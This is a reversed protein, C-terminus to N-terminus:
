MCKACQRSDETNIYRMVNEWETLNSFSLKCSLAKRKLKEKGYFCDQSWGCSKLWSEFNCKKNNYVLFQIFFYLFQCGWTPRCYTQLFLLSIPQELFPWSTRKQEPNSCQKPLVKNMFHFLFCIPLVESWGTAASSRVCSRCCAKLSEDLPIYVAAVFVTTFALCVHNTNWCWICRGLV